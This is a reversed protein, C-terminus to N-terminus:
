VRECMWVWAGDYEYAWACVNKYIIKEAMKADWGFHNTLLM